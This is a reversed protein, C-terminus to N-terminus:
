EVLAAISSAGTRPAGGRSIASRARALPQQSAETGVSSRTSTAPGPKRLRKRASAPVPSRAAPAARPRRPAEAGARRGLPSRPRQDLEDRALGVPGSVAAPRGGRRRRRSPRARARAAGSVPDLALVVEVVRAALDLPEGCDIAARIAPPSSARPRSRPRTRRRAPRPASRRPRPGPRGRPLEARRPTSRHALPDLRRQSRKPTSKSVSTRPASAALLRARHLRRDALQALRAVDVLALAGVQSRVVSNPSSM